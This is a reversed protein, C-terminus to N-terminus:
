MLKNLNQGRPVFFGERYGLSAGEVEYSGLSEDEAVDGVLSEGVGVRAHGQAVALVNVGVIEQNKRVDLFLV